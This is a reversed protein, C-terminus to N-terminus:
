AARGRMEMAKLAEIIPTAQQSTLLDPDVEVNDGPSVFRKCFTRLAPRSRDEIVGLRYCNAWLAHIMRVYPKVSIPLKKGGAKIRFGKRKLEEVVAVRQTESMARLSEQGTVRVLMARYAVEDLGLQSKAINIIAITNM